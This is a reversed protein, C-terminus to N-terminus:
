KSIVAVGKPTISYRAADATKLLSADESVLGARILDTLATHYKYFYCEGLKRYLINWSTPTQLSDLVTLVEIERKIAQQGIDM